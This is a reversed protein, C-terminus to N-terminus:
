PSDTNYIGNNLRYGIWLREETPCAHMCSFLSVTVKGYRSMSGFRFPACRPSSNWTLQFTSHIIVTSIDIKFWIKLSQTSSIEGSALLRHKHWVGLAPNSLLGFWFLASIHLFCSYVSTIIVLLTIRLLIHFISPSQNGALGISGLDRDSLTITSRLTVQRIPFITSM